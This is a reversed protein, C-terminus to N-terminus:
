YGILSRRAVSAPQLLGTGGMALTSARGKPRREEQKKRDQEAILAAIQEPDPAIGANVRVQADTADIVGGKRVPVEAGARNVYQMEVPADTRRSNVSQGKRSGVRYDMIRQYMTTAM